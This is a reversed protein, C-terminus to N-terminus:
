GVEEIGAGRGEEGVDRKGMLTGLVDKEEKEEKGEV